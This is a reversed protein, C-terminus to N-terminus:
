YSTGLDQVGAAAKGTAPDEIRASLGWFGTYQDVKVVLTNWSAKLSVQVRDSDITPPRQVDKTHVCRGNLWVKCGDDSGLWLTAKRAKKSYVSTMLYAVAWDHNMIARLNILGTAQVAEALLQRWRLNKGDKGAYVAKMEAPLYLSKIKREPPYITRLASPKTKADDASRLPSDFPGLVMWDTIFPKVGVGPKPQDDAITPPEFDPRPMRAQRDPLVPFPAHPETQYWYATSAYDNGQLNAHGHEISVRLNKEFFVPDEIHYRYCTFKGGWDSGPVPHWVSVGSYLGALDQMGWAHCFYDETGTGVISPLGEGDIYIMDDGEGWWTTNGSPVPNFNDISVNCGVYHGRGPAELIVYNDKGDVNLDSGKVARTPNERRWQAHFRLTDAALPRDYTEYDVYYYFMSVRKDSQNEVTIRASRAFPMQFYCNMGAGGGVQNDGNSVAFPYCQYARLRAHGMGFFDGVPVEVSPTDEGDWWIRLVLSRLYCPDEAGITFWIHTISGPGTLEALTLTGGPEIPRYDVNGGKLDYSSERRTRVGPRATVLGKMTSMGTIRMGGSAGDDM